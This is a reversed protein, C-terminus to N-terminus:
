QPILCRIYLWLKQIQSLYALNNCRSELHPSLPGWISGWCSPVIVLAQSLEPWRDQQQKAKRLGQYARRSQSQPDWCLFRVMKWKQFFQQETYCLWGNLMQQDGNGWLHKKWAWLPESFPVFVRPMQWMGVALVIGPVLPNQIFPHHYIVYYPIQREVSEM